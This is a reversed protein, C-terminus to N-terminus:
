PAVEFMVEYEQVPVWRGDKVRDNWVSRGHEIDKCIPEAGNVLVKNFGPHETDLNLKGYSAIEDAHIKELLQIICSDKEEDITFRVYMDSDKSSQHVWGLYHVNEMETIWYATGLVVM